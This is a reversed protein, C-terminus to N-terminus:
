GFILSRRSLKLTSPKTQGSAAAQANAPDLSADFVAALSAEATALAAEQNEFELVPSFLSCMQYPGIGEESASIFEFVGAPLRRASKTGAPTASWAEAGAEDGPLAILNIFWPTVLACLWGDGAPRMGVCAVSLAPNLIPVDRMREREIRSFVAELKRSLLDGAAASPLDSGSTETKAAQAEAM